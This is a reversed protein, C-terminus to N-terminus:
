AWVVVAVERRTDGERYELNIGNISVKEKEVFRAIDAFLKAQDKAAFEMVSEGFLNRTKM